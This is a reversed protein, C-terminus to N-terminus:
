EIHKNKKFCRSYILGILMNVSILPLGAAVASFGTNRNSALMLGLDDEFPNDNILYTWTASPGKISNVDFDIGKGTVKINRFITIIENNISQRLEEFAETVNHIYEELPNKGGVIVLHIGDRLYSIYELYDAWCKDISYLILRKEIEKVGVTGIIEELKKYHEAESNKLISSQVTGELISERYSFITKRQQEIIGTYKCLTLRIEYNQSEILKQHKLIENNLRFYNKSSVNLTELYKRMINIRASGKNFIGDELSIFFRTSGPDGQRGARGRLQNDIRISEHRNIGIVYLGGLAIVKERDNENRGGLRIDTGRGAMNTSVTVAGLAGANAIIQAEAEDNKANLISCEVGKEKLMGSLRESEVISGTGILIPRGTKNIETIEEVVATFKSEQDPYIYDPFDIRKSSVNQPISSTEIGYFNMFENQSSLATGTMGSIKPYLKLFNQLSISSLIRGRSATYLGEKIEVATQLRDPWHRKEVVRGTFEDVLEIRHDRVIYDIDRHLMVEAHLASNIDSLLNLNTEEYLNGCNLASEFLQIGRETLYVNRMNEDVNYHLGKKLTKILRFLNNYIHNNEEEPVEAAIVLPTKADDIMISDAEDVIAYNFPRHVITNCDYGMSDRLYDFGAERATVYTIDSDYAARRQNIDMGENIYGVTMGLLKYVPGMWAADRRALYDNYTLIHVGRGSLANLYAPFVAALTKGEGTHMEIMNGNNLHLAALLQCDFPKIVLVRQVSEYVLSFAEILINEDLTGQFSTRLLNKSRQELERNSINSLNIQKIKEIIETSKIEMSNFIKNKFLIKGINKIM